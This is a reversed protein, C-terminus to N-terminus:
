GLDISRGMKSIYYWMKEMNEVLEKFKPPAVANM